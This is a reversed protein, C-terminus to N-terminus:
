SREQIRSLRTRSLHRNHQSRQAQSAEPAVGSKRFSQAPWVTESPPLRTLRTASGSTAIMVSSAEGALRRQDVDGVQHRPHRDPQEGPDPHVPQLASRQHDPGVDAAREQEARNRQSRQGAHEAQLM